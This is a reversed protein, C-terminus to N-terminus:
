GSSTERVTGSGHRNKTSEGGETEWKTASQARAFTKRPLIFNKPTIRVAPSSFQTSKSAARRRLVAGGAPPTGPRRHGAGVGASQCRTLQLFPPFYLRHPPFIFHFLTRPWRLCSFDGRPSTSHELKQQSVRENPSTTTTIVRDLGSPHFKNVVKQSM